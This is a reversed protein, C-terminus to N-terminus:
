PCRVANEPAKLIQAQGEQNDVNAKDISRNEAGPLPLSAHGIGGM